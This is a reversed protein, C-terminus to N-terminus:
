YVHSYKEILQSVYSEPSEGLDKYESPVYEVYDGYKALKRGAADNDCVAIIPRNLLKLYNRYDRPPNNALSALASQGRNTMRAADFIGETLYIAGNSQYLSETGWLVVTNQYKSKYTYYRGTEKSNYKKKDGNQNYQQYGVIQGSLNYLLFTAISNKEDLIPRHLELNLHRSKLHSLISQAM